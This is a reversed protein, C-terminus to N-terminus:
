RPLPLQVYESPADDPMEGQANLHRLKLVAIGPNAWRAEQPEWTTPERMWVLRPGADEIEVFSLANVQDGGGLGPSTLLVFRGDASTAPTGVVELQQGTRQDVLVTGDSEHYWARVVWQHAAPLSGWYIYRVAGSNQLLFQEDPSSSLKVENGRLPRLFLDLGQRRVKGQTSPLPETDPQNVMEPLGNGPQQNFAEATSPRLPIVQNGPLHLTDGPRAPPGTDAVSNAPPAQQTPAGDPRCAASTLLAGIALNKLCSHLLSM